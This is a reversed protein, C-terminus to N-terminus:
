VFFVVTLYILGSLVLVYFVRKYQRDGEHALILKEEDDALWATVEGDDQRYIFAEGEKELRGM